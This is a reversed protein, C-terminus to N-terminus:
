EKKKKKKTVQKPSKEMTPNATNLMAKVIDEFEGIGADDYRKEVLGYKEILEKDTLGKSLKEEKKNEKQM